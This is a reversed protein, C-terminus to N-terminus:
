LLVAMAQAIPSDPNRDALASAAMRWFFSFLVMSLGIVVINLATAQVM